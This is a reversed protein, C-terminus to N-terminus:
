NLTFRAVNARTDPALDVPKGAYTVTTQPANGVVVSLPASGAPVQVSQSAGAQLLQSFIVKGDRATVQVWSPATAAFQLLAGAAAGAASASSAPRAPASAAVASTSISPSAQLGLSSTEAHVPQSSASMSPQAGTPVVHEVVGSKQTEPQASGPMASETLGRLAPWFYVLAAIVVILIALWLLGRSRHGGSAARPLPREPVRASLDAAGSEIVPAPSHLVPAGPLSDLLPQADVRLVKCCSRLLARGFTDDPLASWDGAELAEIKAPAVKLQAALEELNRGAALRADRLAAGAKVRSAILEASPETM